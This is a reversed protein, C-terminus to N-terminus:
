TYHVVPRPRYLRGHGHRWEGVQPPDDNEDDFIMEVRPLHEFLEQGLGAGEHDRRGRRGLREAERLLRKGGDDHDVDEHGTLVGEPEHALQADQRAPAAQGDDTQAAAGEIQEARGQPLRPELDREHLGHIGDVQTVDDRLDHCPGHRRTGAAM